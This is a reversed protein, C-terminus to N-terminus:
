PGMRRHIKQIDSIWTSCSLHFLPRFGLEGDCLEWIIRLSWRRGSLDLGAMLPRGTVSGRVPKGPQPTPM